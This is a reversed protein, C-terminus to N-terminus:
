QNIGMVTGVDSARRGDRRRQRRLSGHAGVQVGAGTGWGPIGRGM